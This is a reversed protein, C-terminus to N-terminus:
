KESSSPRLTLKCAESSGVLRILGPFSGELESVSNDEACLAVVIM